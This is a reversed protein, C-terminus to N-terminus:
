QLEKEWDMTEFWYQWRKELWGSDSQQQIWTNLGALANKNKPALGMGIPEKTLMGSIPLYLSEPHKAALQAPLPASSVFAHAKGNRLEQTAQGEDGFPLVTAKPFLNRTTIEATTGMRVAINIEKKNFDEVKSLGPAIQKNAVITQGSFEYPDSFLIKESREPTVTMGGILIDFKDALLAPIIGNWATPVFQVKVGMDRALAEAIEIEFGIFKGTKDKMAWPVFTDLGVRLVGRKIINQAWPSNSFDPKADQTSAHGPATACVLGLLLFLVIISHKM